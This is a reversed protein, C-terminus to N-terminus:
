SATSLRLFRAAIPLLTLGDVVLTSYTDRGPATGVDAVAVNLGAATSWNCAISGLACGTATLGAGLIAAAGADDTM